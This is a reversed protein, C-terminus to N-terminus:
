SSSCSPYHGSSWPPTQSVDTADSGGGGGRTHQNNGPPPSFHITQGSSFLMPRQSTSSSFFSSHQSQHSSSYLGALSSAYFMQDFMSNTQAAPLDGTSQLLQSYEWYDRGATQFFPAAAAAAAAPRSAIQSPQPPLLVRVHEPFNLKARNGRFRLAAEDYARAAAEATEFTGLWVRAAKHPDRIEAAWKGWPRQRVGRYKRRREGGAEEPPAVTSELLQPPEAEAATPTAASAVSEPEDDSHRLRKQGEWSDSSSPLDVTSPNFSRQGSVVHTLATVMASMEGFEGHGPLAPPPSVVASLLYDPQQHMHFFPNIDPNASATSSTNPTTPRIRAYDGSGQRNAVKLSCM